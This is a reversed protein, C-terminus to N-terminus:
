QDDLLLSILLSFAMAATGALLEADEPRDADKAVESGKQLSIFMSTVMPILSCRWCALSEEAISTDNLIPLENIRNFLNIEAEKMAEKALSNMSSAGSIGLQVALFRENWIAASEIVPEIGELALHDHGIYRMARQIASMDIMGFQSIKDEPSVSMRLTMRVDIEKEDASVGVDDVEIAEIEMKKERREERNETMM